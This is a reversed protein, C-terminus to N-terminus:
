SNYILDSLCPNQKQLLTLAEETAQTAIETQTRQEELDALRRRLNRLEREPGACGDVTESLKQFADDLSNATFPEEFPYAFICYKAEAGPEEISVQFELGSIIGTKKLLANAKGVLEPINNVKEGKNKM